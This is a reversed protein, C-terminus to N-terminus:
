PGGSLKCQYLTRLPHQNFNRHNPIQNLRNHMPSKQYLKGSIIYNLRGQPSADFTTKWILSSTNFSQMGECVGKSSIFFIANGFCDNGIIAKAVCDKQYLLQWRMQTITAKISKSVNCTSNLVINVNCPQNPFMAPQTTILFVILM